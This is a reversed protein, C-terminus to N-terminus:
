VNHGKLIWVNSFRNDWSSIRDFNDETYPEGHNGECYEIVEGDSFYVSPDNECIFPTMYWDLHKKDLPIVDILNKQSETLKVCFDDINQDPTPEPKTGGFWHDSYDDYSDPKIYYNLADGRILFSSSSSNSVFGNRIKM